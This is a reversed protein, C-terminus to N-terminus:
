PINLGKIKEDLGLSKLDVQVNGSGWGHQEIEKVTYWRCAKFGPYDGPGKFVVEEGWAKRPEQPMRAAIAALTNNKYIIDGGNNAIEYVWASRCQAFTNGEVTVNSNGHTIKIGHGQGNDLRDKVHVDYILNHKLLVNRCDIYVLIGDAWNRYFVNNEVIINKSGREVSLGNGGNYQVCGAMRSDRSNNYNFSDGVNDHGTSNLIDCHSSNLCLFGEWQNAYALCDTITIYESDLGVIGYRRANRFELGQVRIYKSNKITFAATDQRSGDIIVSAGDMNRVTTWAGTAGTNELLVNEVYVGAGILITDGPRAAAVAEQITHIVGGEKQVIIAKARAEGAGASLFLMILLM